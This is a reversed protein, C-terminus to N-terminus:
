SLRLTIDRLFQLFVFLLNQSGFILDKRQFCAQEVFQNHGHLFKNRGDLYIGTQNGLEVTQQAIGLHSFLVSIDTRHNIIRIHYVDLLTPVRHNFSLQGQTLPIHRIIDVKICLLLM